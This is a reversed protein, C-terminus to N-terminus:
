NEIMIVVVLFSLCINLRPNSSPSSSSYCKGDAFLSNRPCICSSGDKSVSSSDPCSFCVTSSKPSYKGPGCAVCSATPYASYVSVESVSGYYGPSCTNCNAFGVGTTSTGSGCNACESVFSSGTTAVASGMPCATCRATGNGSVSAGYYGAACFQCYMSGAVSWSGTACASCAIGGVAPQAYGAPCVSACPYGPPAFTGSPCNVCDSATTNVTSYGTRYTNVPCPTCNSSVQNISGYFNPACQNCFTQSGGVTVSSYTNRPCTLCDKVSAKGAIPNYTGSDCQTCVSTLGETLSPGYYGPSCINCSSSGPSSWMGPATESCLKCSAQTTYGGASGTYTGAECATCSSVSTGYYGPPCLLCSTETGATSWTGKPCATCPGSSGVPRIYGPPCTNLCGLGASAYFATCAICNVAVTDIIPDAQLFGKGAACAVCSAQSTGPVVVTGYYNDSCANCYGLGSSTTTVGVALAACAYCAGGGKYNIYGKSCPPLSYTVGSSITTTRAGLYFGAAKGKVADSFFSITGDSLTVNGPITWQTLSSMATSVSSCASLLTATSDPQYLILSGPYCVAPVLIYGTVPTGYFSMFCQLLGNLPSPQSVCSSAGSTYCGTFTWTPSGTIPLNLIASLSVGADASRIFYQNYWVTSSCVCKGALFDAIKYSSTCLPVGPAGAVALCVLSSNLRMLVFQVYFVNIHCVRPSLPHFLSIWLVKM